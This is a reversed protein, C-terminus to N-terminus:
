FPNPQGNVDRQGFHHCQSHMQGISWGQLVVAFNEGMLEFARSLRKFIRPATKGFKARIKLHPLESGEFLCHCPPSTQLFSNGIASANGAETKSPRSISRSEHPPSTARTERYGTGEAEVHIDGTEHPSMKVNSNPPSLIM